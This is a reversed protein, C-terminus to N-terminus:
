APCCFESYSFSDGSCVPLSDVNACIWAANEEGIVETIGCHIDSTITFDINAGKSLLLKLMEADQGKVADVLVSPSNYLWKRGNYEQLQDYGEVNPNAGSNLAASAIEVNKFMVAQQLVSDLYVSMIKEKKIDKSNVRKSSVLIM